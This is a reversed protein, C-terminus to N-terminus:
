KLQKSRSFDIYLTSSCFPCNIYRGGLCGREFEEFDVDSLSWYKGCNGCICHTLVEQTFVMDGKKPQLTTIKNDTM